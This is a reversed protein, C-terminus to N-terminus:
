LANQGILVDVNRETAQAVTEVCIGRLAAVIEAIRRVNQPTNTQDKLMFPSDTELVIDNLDLAMAAARVKKANPNLLLSGIGIKFGCAILLRAEELSGSFAHVIGGQGFGEAKVAEVVAATAKVNHIIVRRKCEAALALHRRFLAQQRARREPTDARLFDLGTEGVWADTQRLLYTRVLSMAADSADDAFWPHIGFAAYIQQPRALSEVTAFDATQASPVIFRTVGCDRASQLIHPLRSQLAAEALHCHTDTLKM